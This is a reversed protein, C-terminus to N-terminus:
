GPRPLKLNRRRDMLKRAGVGVAIVTASWLATFPGILIWWDRLTAGDSDPTGWEAPAGLVLPLTIAGLLVVPWRGVVFGLGLASVFSWEVWPPKPDWEDNPGITWFSAATFAVFAVALMLGLVQRKPSVGRPYNIGEAAQQPRAHPNAQIDRPM